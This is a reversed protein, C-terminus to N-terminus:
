EKHDKTINLLHEAQDAGELLTAKTERSITRGAAFKMYKSTRRLARQLQQFEDDDFVVAYIKEGMDYRVRKRYPDLLEVRVAPGSHHTEHCVIKLVGKRELAKISRLTSKHRYAGMLVQIHQMPPFDQGACAHIYDLVEQQATSLKM